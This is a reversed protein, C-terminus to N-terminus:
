YLLLDIIRIKSKWSYQVDANLWTGADWRNHKYMEYWVENQKGEKEGRSEKRKEANERFEHAACLNLWEWSGRSLLAASLWM